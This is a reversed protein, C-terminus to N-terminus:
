NGCRPLCAEQGSVEMPLFRSVDGTESRTAAFWFAPIAGRGEALTALFDSM